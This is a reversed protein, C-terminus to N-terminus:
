AAKTYPIIFIFATGGTVTIDQTANLQDCLASILQKGFSSGTGSWHAADFSRGNDRITLTLTDGTTTLSIDLAPHAVDSFAYKLANTVIENAILGLPLAKDVDLWKNSVDLHLALTKPSYGYATILSNALDSLYEAMNVMKTETGAYLRQHIFSMAQVRQQSLRIAEQAESDRLRYSQLSLLSTVIQLNNKVRHHLERMMVELQSSQITILDKQKHVRRLLLALAILFLMLALLGITLFLINKEQIRTKADLESILAKNKETEYKAQADAIQKTTNLNSLSDRLGDFLLYYHLASDTPGFTHYTDYLQLYAEQVRTIKGAQKALDLTKYAYDISNHRDGMLAYVHAINGYNFSLKVYMRDHLNIAEAQRLYRLAAPYDKKYESYYQSINNYLISAYKAGKGSRDILDLGLLYYRLASDYFAPLNQLAMSRQIIGQINIAVVLGATDRISRFIDASAAAYAMGQRIYPKNGKEEGMYQYLQAMHYNTVALDARDGSAEYLSLAKIGKSMGAPYDGSMTAEWSEKALRAALSDKDKQAFACFNLLLFLLSASPKM